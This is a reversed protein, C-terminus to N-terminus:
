EGVEEYILERMIKIEEEPVPETGLRMCQASAAAVAWLVSEMLDRSSLYEAVYAALFQDGAATTDVAELSMGSVIGRLEGDRYFFAGKDGRKWIINDFSDLNRYLGTTYFSRLNPFVFEYADSGVAYDEISRSEHPDLFLPIEYAEAQKAAEEYLDTAYGKCYDSVVIGALERTQAIERIRNCLKRFWNTGGAQIETKIAKVKDFRYKHDLGFIRIKSVVTTPNSRVFHVTLGLKELYKVVNCAGGTTSKEDKIHYIHQGHKMDGTPVAHLYTDIMQDGIVLVEKKEKRGKSLDKVQEATLGAKLAAQELIDAVKEVTSNGMTNKRREHLGLTHALLRKMEPAELKTPKGGCIDCPYKTDDQGTEVAPGCYDDLEFWWVWGAGGCKTCNM